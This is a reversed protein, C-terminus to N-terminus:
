GALGVDGGLDRPPSARGRRSVSEWWLRGHPGKWFVDTGGQTSGVAVFPEARLNQGPLRAPSGWTGRPSRTSVWLRRDHGRYFVRVPGTRSSVPTPSQPMDGGLKRPGTWSGTASRFGAWMETNGFGRWFVQIEGDPEATAHPWGGLPGMGLSFPRSWRGNSGTVHWLSADFGKWFVQIQGPSTVVPSPDSALAGGLRQPGQWGHGPFHVGRWLHVDHSGKWFVDVEGGPQAIAKPPGGLIRMRAIKMPRHWRGHARRIEWLYGIRDKYFVDIATGGASVASPEAVLHVGLDAPATWNRGAPRHLYWLRGNSGRYFVDTAGSPETVAQSAEPTGGPGPLQVDLYDQDITIADGGHVQTVNGSFQHLRQHNAWQTASLVSDRTNARHNWLADYIVDPMAYRGSSYQAALDAIGSSSSSYVGSAYSLAHLTTTWASLFRLARFRQGPQYAEMDYYIPTGPGFGLQQAHRAADAAAAAGQRASSRTLEGFAAQPGVYMPIFHWGDRAEQQLWGPTLNPQACAADSGGIYVGIARYRSHRRWANMFGQSPAACTDFGLGTYNTVGYRLPPATRHRAAALVASGALAATQRARRAAAQRAPRAAARRAPRSPHAPQPVGGAVPRPLGASALIKEILGQDSRFTATVRIRADAVTVQRTVPDVSAFPAARAPGPRVLMAETTGIAWGPCSQNTGPRGLYIAHRDFRVCAQSHLGAQIVRWGPPVTFSYGRYSVRHQSQAGGAYLVAATAPATAATMTLVTIAATIAAGARPTRLKATM